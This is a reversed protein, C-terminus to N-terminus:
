PRGHRQLLHFADDRSGADDPKGNGAGKRQGAALHEDEFRGIADSALGRRAVAFDDM